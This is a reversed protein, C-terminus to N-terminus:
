HFGIFWKSFFLNWYFGAFKMVVLISSSWSRFSILYSVILKKGPVEPLKTASLIHGCVISDKHTSKFRLKTSLLPPPFRLCLRSDYLLTGIVLPFTIIGVFTWLLAVTQTGAM